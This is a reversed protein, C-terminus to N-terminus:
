FFISVTRIPYEPAPPFSVWSFFWFCFIEHCQGKLGKSYSTYMYSIHKLEFGHTVIKKKKCISTFLRVCKSTCEICESVEVKKEEQQRSLVTSPRWVPNGVASVRVRVMKCCGSASGTFYGSKLRKM